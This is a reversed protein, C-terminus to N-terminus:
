LRLLASYILFMVLTAIFIGIAATLIQIVM